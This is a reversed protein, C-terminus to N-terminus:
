KLIGKIAVDAATAQSDYTTNGEAPVSASDAPPAAPPVICLPM